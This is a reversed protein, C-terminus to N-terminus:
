AYLSFWGSESVPIEVDLKARRGDAEIPIERLVEGNHHIVVRSLPAISQVEARIRVRGGEGGLRLDEGPKKGDVDFHLLPGSSFFARGERLADLWANASFDGTLHVYTRFSGVVKTVHLNSIADEGGVPVVRLDNNLFRHWVRLQGRSSSSWEYADATGLAVDVPMGKGGGLNSELPDGDGSFPHVYGTVAGQAKAKRFMDTNSPYLSEIGTGEYGTTFPSILHE